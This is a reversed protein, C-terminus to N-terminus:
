SQGLGHFWAPWSLRSRENHRQQARPMEVEKVRGFEAEQTQKHRAADPEFCSVVSLRRIDRQRSQDPIAEDAIVRDLRLTSLTLQDSSADPTM